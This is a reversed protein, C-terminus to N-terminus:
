KTIKIKYNIPEKKIKNSTNLEQSSIVQYDVIDKGCKDTAMDYVLYIYYSENNNLNESKKIENSSMYFLPSNGVTSKVEIYTISEEDKIKIDFGANDNGTESLNSSMPIVEKDKYKNKLYNFIIEEGRKGVEAKKSYNNLDYNIIKNNITNSKSDRIYNKVLRLKPLSITDKEEKNFIIKDKIEQNLMDKIVYDIQKENLKSLYQQKLSKKNETFIDKHDNSILGDAKNLPLNFKFMKCDVQWGDNNWNKVDHGAPKPASYVNNKAISIAYINRNHVHIIMDGKKVAAMNKFGQNPRDNSTLKPSWLIKNEKEFKYSTNQNVLYILM